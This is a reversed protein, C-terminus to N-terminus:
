RVLKLYNPANTKRQGVVYHYRNEIAKRWASSGQYEKRKKIITDLPHNPFDEIDQTIQALIRNTLKNTRPM